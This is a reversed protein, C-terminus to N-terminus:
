SPSICRRLSGLLFSSNSLTKLLEGTFDFCYVALPEIHHKQRRDLPSFFCWDIRHAFIDYQVAQLISM